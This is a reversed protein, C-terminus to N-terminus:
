TLAFAEFLLTFGSNPRAWLVSVLHVRCQGCRTRPVRAHLWALHQFFDLPQWTRETTDQVELETTGSQTCAFRRGPRFDLHVHLEGARVGVKEEEELDLPVDTVFWPNTLGLALGFLDKQEM